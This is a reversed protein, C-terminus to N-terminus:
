VGHWQHTLAARRVEHRESQGEAPFRSHGADRQLTRDQQRLWGQIEELLTEIEERPVASYGRSADVLAIFLGLAWSLQTMWEPHFQVGVWWRAAAIEEFAEIVGDPSTAAMEMGPALLEVAQHHMSLVADLYPRDLTGRGRVAVALRSNSRALQIPHTVWNSSSVRGRARHLLLKPREKPWQARLDQYLTGGLAVNMLQMGRCIGLTPICLLWALLAVYREWVDRWADSNESQPHPPEGYLCSSLDGGGTLILGDLERVVPWLVRFLLAFTRDDSLLQLPDYGEILPLTPILCPMGGAELVAHVTPADGSYSPWGGDRIYGQAALVGIRPRERLNLGNRQQQEAVWHALLDCVSTDEATYRDIPALNSM